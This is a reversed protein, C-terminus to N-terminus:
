DPTPDVVGKQGIPLPTMAARWPIGAEDMQQIVDAPIGYAEAELRRNEARRHQEIQAELAVRERDAFENLLKAVPGTAPIAFSGMLSITIDRLKM